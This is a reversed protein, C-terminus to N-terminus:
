NNGTFPPNDKGEEYSTNEPRMVKLVTLWMIKVDLFFSLHDVYFLDLIFKEKWSLKNRGNVQAWGTIGPLVKHRRKENESYLPLYEPLLPRPGILSMEGRIINILQPLEDISYKRFFKGTSTQRQPYSLTEGKSNVEDKLTKFKLIKFPKNNKGIRTQIFFPSGFNFYAVPIAIIFVPLFFIVLIGSLFVDLIRKVFNKYM